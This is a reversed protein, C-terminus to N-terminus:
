FRDSDLESLYGGDLLLTRGPYKRVNALNHTSILVTCGSGAIECFLNMVQETSAPDLNATPEDALLIKPTNLLARALAIRQREGGSLEDPMAHAKHTMQVSDLVEDIRRNIAETNRWDTARLVFELNHYVTYNSLLTSDQFVIGLSRRLMPIQARSLTHLALGAVAGRGVRLPLEGYLTKLLSSKGSGVRGVLYVMEGPYAEFNVERLVDRRSEKHFIAAGSLQLSPKYEM